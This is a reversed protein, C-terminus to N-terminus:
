SKLYNEKDQSMRYLRHDLVFDKQRCSKVGCNILIKKSTVVNWKIVQAIENWVCYDLPNLDPSNPPRHDKDIFSPFTKAYCEQSKEHMHVKAGDQQFTSDDGFMDNGYKLAVPVVEKIYRHHDLTDSEFIVLPSVDKSCVGPWVMVKQPFKCKRRLGGKSYSKGSM